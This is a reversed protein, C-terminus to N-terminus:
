RGNKYEILRKAAYEAAGDELHPSSAGIFIYCDEGGFSAVSTLAGTKTGADYIKVGSFESNRDLSESYQEVNSAKIVFVDARLLNSSDFFAYSFPHAKAMKIGDPLEEELYREIAETDVDDAEIFVTIKKAPVTDTVLNVVWNWFLTSIVLWAVIALLVSSLNKFFKRM